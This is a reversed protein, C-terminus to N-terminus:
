RDVLLSRCCPALHAAVHFVQAQRGLQLCNPAAPPDCLLWYMLIGATAHSHKNCDITGCIAHRQTNHQAFRTFEINELKIMLKLWVSCSGCMVPCLKHCLFPDDWCMNRAPLQCFYCASPTICQTLCTHMAHLQRPLMSVQSSTPCLQILTKCCTWYARWLSCPTMMVMFCGSM